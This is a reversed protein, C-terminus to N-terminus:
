SRFMPVNKAREKALMALKFRAPDERRAQSWAREFSGGSSYLTKIREEFHFAAADELDEPDPLVDAKISEKIERVSNKVPGTALLRAAEKEANQVAIGEQRVQAFLEPNQARAAGWAREFSIRRVAQLQNVLLDFKEASINKFINTM